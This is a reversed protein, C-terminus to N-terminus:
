VGRTEASWIYKHLQLQVSVRLHDALVWESLTRPNLV